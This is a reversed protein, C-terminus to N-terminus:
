GVVRKGYKAIPEVMVCACCILTVGRMGVILAAPPSQLVRMVSDFGAKALREIAARGGSDRPKRRGQNCSGNERLQEDFGSSTEKEFLIDVVADVESMVMGTGIESVLALGVSGVEVDCASIAWRRAVPLM